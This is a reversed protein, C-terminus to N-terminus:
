TKDIRKKIVLWGRPLHYAPNYHGMSQFLESINVWYPEQVVEDIDCLLVNEKSPDWDVLPSYHPNGQPCLAVHSFFDDQRYNVIVVTNRLKFHM